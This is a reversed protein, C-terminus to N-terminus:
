FLAAAEGVANSYFCSEIVYEEIGTSHSVDFQKEKDQNCLISTWGDSHSRPLDHQPEELGLVFVKNLYEASNNGSESSTASSTQLNPVFCKLIIINVLLPSDIKSINNLVHIKILETNLTSM